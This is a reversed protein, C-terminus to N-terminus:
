YSSNDDSFLIILFLLIIYPVNRFSYNAQQNRISIWTNLWKEEDTLKKQTYGLIPLPRNTFYLVTMYVNTLQVICDM